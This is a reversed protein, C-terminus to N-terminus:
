FLGAQLLSELRGVRDNVAKLVNKEIPSISRIDIMSTPPLGEAIDAIQQRLVLRIALHIDEALEGVEAPIDDRKLLAEVRAASGREAIGRSIALVRVTEVLPLLINRKVNFRGNETRLCGFITCGSDHSAANRALLKLLGSRRTARGSIAMQLQNSLSASGYVAVFDFFIDV